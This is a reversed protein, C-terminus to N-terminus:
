RQATHLYLYPRGSHAARDYHIDPTAYFGTAALSVRSLHALRTLTPFPVCEGNVVVGDHTFRVEDATGGFKSAAFEALRTRLIQAANFAAMGNLDAGASAATASTNPLKDTRTASVRVSEIPVAFVDAVIQAVKIMLGQEMETGGHNLHISGDTYILVLAGAQNLHTVIFSTGFKVPVLALGKKLVATDRM